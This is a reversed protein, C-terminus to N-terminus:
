KKLLIEDFGLMSGKATLANRNLHYSVKLYCKGSDPVCIKLQVTGKQSTFPYVGKLEM